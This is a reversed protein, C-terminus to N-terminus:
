SNPHRAKHAPPQQPRGAIAARTFRLPLKAPGHVHLAQRPLWPEASAPAFDQVRDFFESLAVRAELRALAAGLCSHIGHGFAIHPNPDRSIDFRQPDAFHRPDRNASGIVALVLKGAPITQGHLEVDRNPARMMWQLPARYRLVEEIASALLEPSQRLRQLQDPADLLCILANNILNTTTEQGGVLLLQFFGLIEDETLREGEVEAEALHWLLDDRPSARREALLQPLCAQIEATVASFEAVAQMTEDDRFLCYSLKLIGDSWRKYRPVDALPIGLMEAIVMMPLPTSFQSAIDTEGNQLAEDLLQRSLARIRLELNAVTRPTFAKSVLARLRTHRPPDFFIFWNAPGPVCSTFTDHDSLVRKVGDYDFVLWCDWQPVHLLPSSACLEAYLPYPDRRMPDSFLEM